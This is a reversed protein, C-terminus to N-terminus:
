AEILDTMVPSIHDNYITFQLKEIFFNRGDVHVKETIDMDRIDIASLLFSGSFKIKDKEIWSKFPM